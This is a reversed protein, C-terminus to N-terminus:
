RDSVRMVVLTMDDQRPQDGAFHQVAGFLRELISQATVQQECAQRFAQLLNEEDFRDGQDNAADTFGDTYYLVVDGPQLVVDAQEYRSAADLGILMGLTDLRHIHHDAARWLLPPNHAANSFLLRRTGPDYESYFLTVFRNAHELDSYIVRNLNQLVRAPAHGNLVEARLMGRLMTMILGAPVGKGMVDGIAIGWHTERGLTQLIFDYYDGGVHSANRCRAALDLGPIAPCHRPLLQLQIEAGIEMERDLRERQRLETTLEENEIAVAAQDAVLRVLKQRAETWTYTRDRSYVYLRGRQQQKSLVTTAFLQAGSDLADLILRDLEAIHAEIPQRQLQLQRIGLRVQESLRPESAHLQELWLRGDPRFVALIAGDADSVRSAIWPILELFQALNTFSRLAYGLSTLLDQTKRQERDLRSVLQKLALVPSLSDMPASLPESESPQLTPRIPM